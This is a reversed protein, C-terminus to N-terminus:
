NICVANPKDYDDEDFQVEDIHYKKLEPTYCLSPITEVKQFGNGEDDRAYIIELELAKPNEQILKTLHDLYKKLKM